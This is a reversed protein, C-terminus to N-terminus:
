PNLFLLYIDTQDKARTTDFQAAKERERGVNCYETGLGAVAAVFSRADGSM